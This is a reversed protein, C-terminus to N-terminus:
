VFEALVCQLGRAQQFASQVISEGLLVVGAIKQSQPNHIFVPLVNEELALVIQALKNWDFSM